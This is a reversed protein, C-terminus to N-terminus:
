GKTSDTRIGIAYQNFQGYHMGNTIGEVPYQINIKQLSVLLIFLIHTYADVCAHTSISAHMCAQTYM